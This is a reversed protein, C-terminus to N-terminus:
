ADTRPEDADDGRPKSRPTIKKLLAQMADVSDLDILTRTDFKYADIRGENILAYCKTVGFRGYRCAEKVTVLRRANETPAPDM